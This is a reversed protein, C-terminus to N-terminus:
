IIFQIRCTATKHYEDHNEAEPDVNSFKLNTTLTAFHMHCLIQCCSDQLYM